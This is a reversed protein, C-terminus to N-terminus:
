SAITENNNDKANNIKHGLIIPIYGMRRHRGDYLVEADKMLITSDFILYTNKIWIAMHM